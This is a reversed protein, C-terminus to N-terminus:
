NRESRDIRIVSLLIIMAGLALDKGDFSHLWWFLCLHFFHLHGTIVAVTIDNDYWVFHTHPPPPTSPPPASIIKKLPVRCDLLVSRVDLLVCVFVFRAWSIVFGLSCQPGLYMLPRPSHAPIIWAVIKENCYCKTYSKCLSKLHQRWAM